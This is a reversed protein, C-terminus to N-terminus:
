TSEQKPHKKDISTILPVFKMPNKALYEEGNKRKEECKKKVFPDLKLVDRCYLNISWKYLIVLSM